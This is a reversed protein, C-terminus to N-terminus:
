NNGPIMGISFIEQDNTKFFMNIKMDPNNLSNVPELTISQINSFSYGKESLLLNYKELLIKFLDKFLENAAKNPPNGNIGMLNTLSVINKETGTINMLISIGEESDILKSSASFYENGNESDPLEIGTVEKKTLELFTLQVLNQLGPLLNTIITEIKEIPSVISLVIKSFDKLFLVPDSTKKLIGDFFFIRSSSEKDNDTILYISVEDIGAVERVKETLIKKDLLGFKDSVFIYNPKHQTFINLGEIGSSAEHIIFKNGLVSTFFAKFEADKDAILLQNLGADSYVNEKKSSKNSKILINNIVKQIRKFALDPDIPKLIYDSIGKEALTGVLKKENLATIVLVPINKFIPNSRIRGLTEVGDMVPMTLDLLVLDPLYEQLSNLGIEGNEAEIVACTYRRKLIRKLLFRTSEDDEIILIKLM